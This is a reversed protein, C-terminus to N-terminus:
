DLLHTSADYHESFVPGRGKFMSVQTLVYDAVRERDPMGLANFYNFMEREDAFAEMHKWAQAPDIAQPEAGGTGLRAQQEARELVSDLEGKLRAIELKFAELSGSAIVEMRGGEPKGRLMLRVTRGGDVSGSGVELDWDRKM